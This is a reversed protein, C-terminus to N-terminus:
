ITSPNMTKWIPFCLGNDLDPTKRKYATALDWLETVDAVVNDSIDGGFIYFIVNMKPNDSKFRVTVVSHRTKAAIEHATRLTAKIDAIRNELYARPDQASKPLIIELCDYKWSGISSLKKTVAADRNHYLNLQRTYIQPEVM